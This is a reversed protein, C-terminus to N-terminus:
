SRIVPIRPPPHPIRLGRFAPKKYARGEPRAHSSRYAWGRRAVEDLFEVDVGFAEVDDSAAPLLRRPRVRGLVAADFDLPERDFLRSAPHPIRSACVGFHQNRTPGVKLDPTLHVIHGVEVRLKVSFNLTSGLRRSM